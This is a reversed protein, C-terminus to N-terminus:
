FFERFNKRMFSSGPDLERGLYGIALTRSPSFRIQNALFAIARGSGDEVYWSAPAEGSVAPRLMLPATEDFTRGRAIDGYWSTERNPRWGELGRGREVLGLKRPQGPFISDVVACERLDSITLDVKDWLLYGAPVGIKLEARQMEWDIADAHSWNWTGFDPTPRGKKACDYKAYAEIVVRRKIGREITRL